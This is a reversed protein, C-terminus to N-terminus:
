YTHGGYKRHSHTLQYPLLSERSMSPTPAGTRKNEKKAHKSLLTGARRSTRPKNPLLTRRLELRQTNLVQSTGREAFCKWNTLGHKWQLMANPSGQSVHPGSQAYSGPKRGVRQAFIAKAKCGLSSLIENVTALLDVDSQTEPAEPLRTFCLRNRRVARERTEAQHRQRLELTKLEQLEEKLATIQAQLGSDRSKAVTAVFDRFAALESKLTEVTSQLLSLESCETPHPCSDPFGRRFLTTHWQRTPLQCRV